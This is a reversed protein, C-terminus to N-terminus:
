ASGDVSSNYKDPLKTIASPLCVCVLRPNQSDDYGKCAPQFDQLEHGLRCRRVGLIM